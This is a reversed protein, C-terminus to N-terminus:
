ELMFDLICKLNLLDFYQHNDYFFFHASIKGISQILYHKQYFLFYVNVTIKGWHIWNYKQTKWWIQRVDLNLCLCGQRWCLWWNLLLSFFKADISGQVGFLLIAYHVHSSFHVWGERSGQVTGKISRRCCDYLTGKLKQDVTKSFFSLLIWFQSIFM